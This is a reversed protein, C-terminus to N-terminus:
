ASSTPSRSCPTPADVTRASSARVDDARDQSGPPHAEPKQGGTRGRTRAAALGDRTRESMLAHEFEALGSRSRVVLMRRSRRAGREREDLRSRASPRRGCRPSAEPGLRTRQAARDRAGRKTSSRTGDEAATARDSQLLGLVPPHQRGRGPMPRGSRADRTRRGDGEHRKRQTLCALRSKETEDYSTLAAPRPRRPGGPCSAPQGGLSSPDRSPVTERVPASILRCGM